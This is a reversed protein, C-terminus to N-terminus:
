GRNPNTFDLCLKPDIGWKEPREFTVIRFETEDVKSLDILRHRVYRGTRTDHIARIVPHLLDKKGKEIVVGLIGNHLRVLSGVPYIGISRIFSQTLEENFHSNRQEFIMKLAETPEMKRRYCRVSTLADYVDVIAAMQGFPSIEDGKLRGPYGTGDIREHHQSVVAIVIPLAANGGVLLKQGSSAHGKIISFENDELPGPKNLIHDPITVKGVDHLLGGIGMMKITDFDMGLTRGFAMLLTAVSVSHYFTYEDKDKIQCLSIMADPNRFISEALKEVVPEVTETTIQKGLRADAIIDRVVSTAQSYIERAPVLEEDLSTAQRNLGEPRGDAPDSAVPKQGHPEPVPGIGNGPLDEQQAKPEPAAMNASKLLNRGPYECEPLDDGKDTDIFVEKVGHCRIKGIQDSSVIKIKNKFFPHNIWSCNMDHIYMGVKIQTASIKRIM